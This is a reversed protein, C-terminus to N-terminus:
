EEVIFRYLRNLALKFSKTNVHYGKIMNMKSDYISLSGSPDKELITDGEIIFAYNLESGVIHWNRNSTDTLLHGLSYDAEENTVGMVNMMITPMIDYHTTRHYYEYPEKDPYHVILPVQIQAKSFNGNHGWYNKKNENFEQGHDGTIIVVTNKDLGTQKLASLVKGINRDTAYCTNRYLNWFPTADMNNNLASYDAYAWSPKFRSYNENYEFSHPLDYFLFSFFPTDNDKHAYIDKIIDRTIRCDREYSTKGPTSVRLNKEKSFLVKAFPPDIHSASPYNHFKYGEAHAVDLVAPTIKNSEAYDWYYSPISYWLSFVGSKTGNSGSLHNKYWQSKKAYRYINPMCEPTLSRQNWSDILIIIINQRTSDKPTIQLEKLPYHMTGDTSVTKTNINQAPELHFTNAMLSYSTLPFYYPLLRESQVISQKAYFAAYIHYCHAFFTCLLIISVPIFRYKKNSCWENLHSTYQQGSGCFAWWLGIFLLAVLIFAFAYKALLLTDFNFIENAAPGTLMNIIFGNIHFRYIQYVQEDVAIFCSLVISMAIIFFRGVSPIRAFCCLVYGILPVASLCAAHSICSTIYFLWGEADM